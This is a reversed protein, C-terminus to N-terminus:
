LIRSRVTLFVPGRLDLKKKNDTVYRMAYEEIKLNVDSPHKSMKVQVSTNDGFRAAEEIRAVALNAIACLFSLGTSVGDTRVDKFQENNPVGLIAGDRVFVENLAAPGLLRSNEESEVVSIAVTKGFLEGTWALFECPSPTNAHSAAIEIIAAVAHRGAITQPEERLGISKALEIDSYVPPYLQSFSLKRVDEAQSLIMALREVGMGLNMVPVGVGYEVLAVPSYLGFTAVEVWGHVPHKGYVETQTGPMYYKSRKEDPQFRFETFGFASLLSESVAKGEDITVNEGAVICSASHYTRLHTADEVQERRFCRDVSFMRIPLQRKDWMQALSLFWGSTMHSRLTTRSSEPTLEKFEPFVTDLIHVIVGDDVGLSLSMEHILDDGDFKGKKYGHLCKMLKESIAEDIPRGTIAVIADLRERSIGVNPRPLGGVYYVRDLVAAAEPGFQRYVDQEDIFVPVMVEDFGMSLYATRLCSITDFIPHVKARHYTYRPYTAASAPPTIVSSGARWAGEFDTKRRQRFEDIDFKM